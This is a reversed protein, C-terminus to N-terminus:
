KPFVRRYLATVVASTGGLLALLYTPNEPSDGCGSQAHAAVPLFVLLAIFLAIRKKM